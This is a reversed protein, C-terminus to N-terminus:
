DRSQDSATLFTEYSALCVLNLSSSFIRKMLTIKLEALPEYFTLQLLCEMETKIQKATLLM